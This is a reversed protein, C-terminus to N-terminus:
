RRGTWTPGAARRACEAPTMCALNPTAFAASGLAMRASVSRTLLWATAREVLRTRGHGPLSGCGSTRAALDVDVGGRALERVQLAADVLRRVGAGRARHLLLVGLALQGGALPDFQQQVLTREHLQVLEGPVARGVEAQLLVARVAVADDGAVARDVAARDGDERLVERDEAAREALDVALLDDLDHVERQLGAARDDADVVGAAGADLLADDREAQVALDEAAVGM